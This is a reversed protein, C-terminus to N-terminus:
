PTTSTASAPGPSTPVPEATPKPAPEATPKATPKPAPEATPAATPKPAPEATPRPTTPTPKPATPTPATATPAPGPVTPATGPTTRCPRPPRGGQHHRPPGHRDPAGLRPPGPLVPLAPRVPRESPHPGTPGSPPGTPGSPGDTRGDTRGDAREDTRGDTPMPVPIPVPVPRPARRGSLSDPVSVAVPVAPGLPGVPYASLGGRRPEPATATGRPEPDHSPRVGPPEGTVPPAGPMTGVATGDSGVLHTLVLVVAAAAAVVALAGAAPRSRRRSGHGRGVPFGATDLAGARRAVCRRYPVLGPDTFCSMVRVRLTEPPVVAPLLDLVRAASVQRARHPACADCRNVHRILRERADPTLGGASGASLRARGACDHPGKRALVEATVVDRLRERASGCMAGARRASVGLVAALDAVSLGHRSILELVEREEPSLSRVADRAMARLGADGSGAAVPSPSSATRPGPGVGSGGDPGAESVGGPGPAAAPEPAAVPGTATGGREPAATPRRRVCEGRALAYLWAELRDPDALAHVHAEAAILTDRLAVEASDPGDPGDPGDLMSRCYRYINEAHLDYLAALAGAERARLAGVLASRNM